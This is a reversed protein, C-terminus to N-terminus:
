IAKEHLTQGHYKKKMSDDTMLFCTLFGIEMQGTINHVESM